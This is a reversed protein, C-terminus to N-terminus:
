LLCAFVRVKPSARPPLRLRQIQKHGAVTLYFLVNLDGEISAALFNPNFVPVRALLKLQYTSQLIPPLAASLDGRPIQGASAAFLM